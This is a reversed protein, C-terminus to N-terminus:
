IYGLVSNISVTPVCPFSLRFIWMKTKAYRCQMFIQIYSMIFFDLTVVCQGLQGVIDCLTDCQFVKFSVPFLSATIKKKKKKELM